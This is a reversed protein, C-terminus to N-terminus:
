RAEEQEEAQGSDAQRSGAAEGSFQQDDDGGQVAMGAGSQRRQEARYESGGGEQRREPAGEEPRQAVSLYGGPFVQQRAFLSADQQQGRQQDQGDADIWHRYQFQSRGVASAQTAASAPKYGAEARPQGSSTM